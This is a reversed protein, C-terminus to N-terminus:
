KALIQSVSEAAFNTRIAATKTALIEAALLERSPKKSKAFALYEKHAIKRYTRPKVLGYQCCFWDLMRELKLWAENLLSTDQPYRIHQPAETADYIQTAILVGSKGSDFRKKLKRPKPM